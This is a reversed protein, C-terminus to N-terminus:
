FGYRDGYEFGWRHDCAACRYETDGNCETVRSDCEPCEEGAAHASERKLDKLTKLPERRIISPTYM